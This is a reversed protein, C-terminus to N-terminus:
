VRESREFSSLANWGDIQKRLRGPSEWNLMGSGSLMECETPRIGNELFLSVAIANKRARSRIRQNQRGSKRLGDDESLAVRCLLMWDQRDLRDRLMKLKQRAIMRSEFTEDLGVRRETLMVVPACRKKRARRREFFCAQNWICKYVYLSEAESGQAIRPSQRWKVLRVWAHTLLEFEYDDRGMALNDIDGRINRMMCHAVERALRRYKELQRGGIVCQEM